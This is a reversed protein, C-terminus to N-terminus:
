INFAITVYFFKYYFYTTEVEFKFNKMFFLAFEPTGEYLQELYEEGFVEVDM